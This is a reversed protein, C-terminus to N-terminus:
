AAITEKIWSGNEDYIQNFVIEKRITEGDAEYLIAKRKTYRKNSEDFDTLQSKIRLNGKLDKYQIITWLSVNEDYGSREPQLLGLSIDIDKEAEELRDDLINFIKSKASSQRADTVEASSTGSNDIINTIRGDVNEIRDKNLKLQEDVKTFNENIKDGWNREGLSPLFLKLFSTLPM